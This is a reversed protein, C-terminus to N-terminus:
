GNGRLLGAAAPSAAGALWAVALSIRVLSNMAIRGCAGDEGDEGGEGAAGVREHAAAAGAPPRGADAGARSRAAGSRVGEGREEGGPRRGPEDGHRQWVDGA